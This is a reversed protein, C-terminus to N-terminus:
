DELMGTSKGLHICMCEDYKLVLRSSQRCRDHTQTVRVEDHERVNAGHPDAPLTEHGDNSSNTLRQNKINPTNVLPSGNTARPYWLAVYLGACWATKTNPPMEWAVLM